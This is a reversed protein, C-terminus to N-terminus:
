LLLLLEGGIWLFHNLAKNIYETLCQCGMLCQGGLTVLLSDPPPIWVIVLPEFWYFSSFQSPLYALQQLSIGLTHWIYWLILLAHKVLWISAPQFLKQTAAAICWPSCSVVTNEQVTHLTGKGNGVATLFMWHHCPVSAVLFNNLCFGHVESLMYVEGLHYLTPPNQSHALAVTEIPRCWCYTTTQRFHSLLM